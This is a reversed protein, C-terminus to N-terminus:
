NGASSVGAKKLIDKMLWDPNTKREIEEVVDRVFVSFDISPYSAKVDKYNKELCDRIHRKLSVRTYSSADKVLTKYLSKRRYFDANNEENIYKDILNSDM